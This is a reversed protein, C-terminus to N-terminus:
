ARDREGAGASLESQEREASDSSLSRARKEKARANQFWVQVVRHPLGLEQGLAECEHRNPTRHSRYFDRLQLVQFHSMQTRQRQQQHHHHHHQQLTQTEGWDSSPGGSGEPSPSAQDAMSSGEECPYEEDDEEYDDDEEQNNLDTTLSLSTVAPNGTLEKNSIVYGYNPIPNSSLSPGPRDMVSSVTMGMQGTSLNYGAREAEAWHRSRMHADLASKVKFLARCFPCRLHNLGLSFSSGPGMSRFQGKRERARTNQFWVQVVRRTLGVDRAISELVGRTPNSDLSYRQYLVELQEPTITTRQRKDRRHEEEMDRGGRQVEFSTESILKTSQKTPTLSSQSLSNLNNSAHDSLTNKIQISNLHSIMSHTPNPHIQSMAGSLMQSAMLTHNPHFMMYPMTRDTFGSHLLQVQSQAALLHRTQHEQWLQFSPLSLPCVSCQFQAQTQLQLQNQPQTETSLGSTSDSLRTHSTESVPASPLSPSPDVPKECAQDSSHSQRDGQSSQSMSQFTPITNQSSSSSYPQSRELTNEPLQKTELKLSSGMKMVTVIEKQQMDADSIGNQTQVLAPSKDAHPSITKDEQKMTVPTPERKVTQHKSETCDTSSDLVPSDPHTYYEYTLDMSNENQSDGHGEDGFSNDENDNDDNKFCGNKQRHINDPQNKGELGDDTGRDQYKRARQRANQFWVVIVRNPLSLLASLRDYEEERPYPTAEFVGQLAELQQETFRTRSSRRGRHPEGRQLDTTQHQPSINAPLSPSLSCPSLTLAQNHAVEERCEELSTTPPNNFNYPSDKDRQREKFLTNRFWHKIVKYPLGSLASMKNTDEDSPLSNIDFHRRLVTLQEESIRTRTRKGQQQELITPSVPPQPGTQIPSHQSPQGLLAPSLQPTQSLLAPSLQPPQGLLAPKLQSQYLKALEPNVSADLWPQTQLAVSQMMVPPLLPLEMPFPIPPLPLKPLPLPPISLHPLPLSLMPKKPLPLPISKAPSTTQSTASASTGPISAEQQSFEQPQLPSPPSSASPATAPLDTATPSTKTVLDPVSPVPSLAITKVQPKVPEVPAESEMSPAPTTVAAQPCTTSNEGFKSQTLPYMQDYQLRYKRSFTELAATPFLMRHIHEQHSKLILADSFLKGCDKCKEGGTCCTKGEKASGEVKNPKKQPPLSDREGNVLVEKNDKNCGGMKSDGIESIEEREKELCVVMKILDSCQQEAPIMQTTIQQQHRHRSQLYQMALEYGYSQLLARLPEGNAAAYPVRPPPCQLELLNFSPSDSEEKHNENKFTSDHIEEKEQELCTNKHERERQNISSGSCVAEVKMECQVHDKFQSVASNSSQKQTQREDTQPPSETREEAKVYETPISNASAFQGLELGMDLKMDGSLYFPLLLQQQLAILNEPALSFHKLLNEQGFSLHQLMQSQLLATQQQLQAQAQAQAQALQQQQILILQNRSALLEAVKKKTKQSDTPNSLTQQVKTPLGFELLSSVSSSALDLRKTFPLSKSIEERTAAPHTATTPATLPVAVSSAPTQPAPNQAARARTQHLVSRLHIDLTSSQSYGVGCLRCRYPRSDPGRPAEAAAAGTGSDQLARRARHLHSVSNFHVLLITKQTFSESCITCKYPRSPDLYRDMTPNSCKKVLSSSSTEIIMEEHSGKEPETLDEVGGGDETVMGKEKIKAEEKQEEKEEMSLEEEEIDDDEGEGAEQGVQPSLNFEQQVSSKSNEMYQATHLPLLTNQGQTNDLQSHTNQMHRQLAEQSRCQRSCLPCETAARMAHYQWHLQLKEQTPFALSCRSCRFRYGHRDSLSPPDSPPSNPPSSPPIQTPSQPALRGNSPHTTNEELPPTLLATVDKPAAVDGETNEVSIGKNKQSDISAMSDATHSCNENNNKATKNKQTDDTCSETPLETELQPQPQEMSSTATSILKDVCDQAVSHVHSLHQRIHTYPVKVQCLPCQVTQQNENQQHIRPRKTEISNEMEGCGSSPRKVSPLSERKEREEGRTEEKEESTQQAGLNCTDKTELLGTTTKSSTEMDESLEGTVGDPSKRITFIAALEEGGMPQLQLLGERQQHTPTQSHKLVQLKSSSSHNCLLCHFLWSGGDVEGDYQQLFRYVRVGAEHHSGLSHGRLKELSSTVYDCLNCRLQVPNGKAILAVGEQGRDGGEQLHATLQYRTRHRDTQCHLSFNARLPTTYGCLRCHCGGAVLSCWESQPLSRPANLHQEVIELSDSSFCSCVLCQFMGQSLQGTPSLSPAPPPSPSPSPSPTLTSGLTVPQEAVQQSTLRMNLSLEAGTNHLHKLQPALSRCHSLYYGRQLRLMNHTHKESTTHIRLNRAISTEYDCVDCRWRKGHSHSHAPPTLKAPPTPPTPISLPLKYAPEDVTHGNSSSSNNTVHPTHMHGNSHGGNQVNNLHKDSQMHISLNGKSSTAYDCVECRYPKYGCAYTEGRALRPHPKGSHCYGCVGRTTGGCVCKGGSAGCVCHGETEPHKEKMHVQLTHQSKYHWNCKPCKLTKCSNRSHMITMHSTLSNSSLDQNLNKLVAEKQEGDKDREDDVETDPQNDNPEPAKAGDGNSISSHSVGEPGDDEALTSAPETGALPFALPSQQSKFSQPFESISGQDGKIDNVETECLLASSSSPSTFHKPSTALFPSPKPFPSSTPSPKPSADIKSDLTGSAKATSSSSSHQSRQPLLSCKSKTQSQNSIAEEEEKEEERGRSSLAARLGGTVSAEGERVHVEGEEKRQGSLYGEGFDEKMGQKQRVGNERSHRGGEKQEGGQSEERAQSGEAGEEQQLLTLPEKAPAMASTFSSSGQESSDALTLLPLSLAQPSLDADREEGGGGDGGGGEGSDM